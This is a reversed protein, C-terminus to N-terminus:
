YPPRPASRRPASLRNQRLARNFGARRSADSPDPVSAVPGRPIRRAPRKARGPIYGARVDRKRQGVLKTLAELTSDM